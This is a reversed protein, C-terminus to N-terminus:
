EEREHPCYGYHGLATNCNHCLLRFEEKPFGNRKLWLYFSRGTGVRARHDGGGGYKHDVALFESTSEGCCQCCGGYAVIVEARLAATARRGDERIKIRNKMYYNKTYQQRKQPDGKLWTFKEKPERMCPKCRKMKGDPYRNNTGFESLPVIKECELCLKETMGPVLRNRQAPYKSM